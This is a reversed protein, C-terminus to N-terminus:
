QEDAIFFSNKDVFSRLFRLYFCTTMKVNTNILTSTCPHVLTALAHLAPAVM